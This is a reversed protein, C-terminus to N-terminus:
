PMIQFIVATAQAMSASLCLVTVAVTPFIKRM